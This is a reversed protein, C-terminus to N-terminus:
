QLIGVNNQESYILNKELCCATVVMLETGNPMTVRM